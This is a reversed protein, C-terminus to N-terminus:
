TSTPPSTPGVGNVANLLDQLEKLTDATVLEFVQVRTLEPHKVSLSRFLVEGTGEPTELIANGEPTVFSITEAQTYAVRLAAERLDPPADSYRKKAREKLYWALWEDLAAFQELSLPSLEYRKGELTIHKAAGVIKSLETPM